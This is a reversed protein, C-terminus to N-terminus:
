FVADSKAVDSLAALSDCSSLLLSAACLISVPTLTSICRVPRASELSFPFTLVVVTPQALILEKLAVSCLSVDSYTGNSFQLTM